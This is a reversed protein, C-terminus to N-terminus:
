YECVIGGGFTSRVAAAAAAAATIGIATATAAATATALPLPVSTSVVPAMGENQAASRELGVVLHAM